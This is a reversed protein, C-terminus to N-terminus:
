EPLLDRPPEPLFFSLGINALYLVFAVGSAAIAIKATTSDGAIWATLAIQQTVYAFPTGMM